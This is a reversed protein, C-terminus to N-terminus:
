RLNEFLDATATDVETAGKPGPKLRKLIRDPTSEMSEVFAADGTPRGAWTNRRLASWEGENLTANVYDAWGAPGNNGPFPRNSDLFRAAGPACNARCSSWPYDEGREAMRARVPNM